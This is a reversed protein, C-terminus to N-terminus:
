HVACGSVVYATAVVEFEKARYTAALDYAKIQGATSKGDADTGAVNVIGKAGAFFGRAGVAVSAEVNHPGYAGVKVEGDVYQRFYRAGVSIADPKKADQAGQVGSASLVLGPVIDKYSADVTKVNDTAIAAKM